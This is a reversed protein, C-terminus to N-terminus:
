AAPGVVVTVTGTASSAYPRDGRGTISDVCDFPGADFSFTATYSGAEFYTHTADLAKTAAAPDYAPPDWPGFKACSEPTSGGIGSNGFNFTTGDYSVGDPDALAIHFVMPQGAIPSAPEVTVVVTMPRDPGPQPDFRFPGCKPDTSNRCPDLTTTTTAAVTTITTSVAAATLPAPATTPTTMVAPPVTTTTTAPAKAAVVRALTTTTPTPRPTPTAAVTSSTTTSPDAIAEPAEVVTTLGVGAAFAGAGTGIQQGDDGQATLGAIGLLLLFGVVLVGIVQRERDIV